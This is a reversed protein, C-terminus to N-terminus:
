SASAAVCKKAIEAALHDIVIQVRAPRLGGPPTLIHLGIAPPEWDALLIELKGEALSDRIAFDPMLAIMLGACVAPLAADANNTRL